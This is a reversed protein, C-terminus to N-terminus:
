LRCSDIYSSMSVFTRGASSFHRISQTLSPHKDLRDEISSHSIDDGTFDKLFSRVFRAASSVNSSIGGPGKVNKSISIALGGIEYSNGFLLKIQNEKEILNNKNM